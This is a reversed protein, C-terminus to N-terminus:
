LSIHVSATFKKACTNCRCARVSIHKRLHRRHIWGRILYRGLYFGGVASGLLLLLLVPGDLLFELLGTTYIVIFLVIFMVIPMAAAGVVSGVAMALHEKADQPHGTSSFVKVDASKCAPCSIQDGTDIFAKPIPKVVPATEAQPQPADDETGIIAKIRQILKELVETKRQYAAYRQAGTLLFNFEDNLACEELMFPLIVKGANVASDLEKLVWHSDQANRSLILLFVQCGRIAIPIEKTYNSGGPIDAPAMWCRIRNSELVERVTQAQLIDKSSYSIFVNHM